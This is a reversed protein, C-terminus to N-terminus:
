FLDAADRETRRHLLYVRKDDAAAIQHRHRIDRTSNKRRGHKAKGLRHQVPNPRVFRANVLAYRSQPANRRASEHGGHTTPSVRTRSKATSQRRAPPAPRVSSAVPPSKEEVLPQPDNRPSPMVRIVEPSEPGILKVTRRKPIVRFEVTRKEGSHVILQQQEVDLSFYAPLDATIVRMRWTGPAVVGFDVRGHADSSQYITDRAGQLAVLANDFAGADVLSDQPNTAGTSFASQRGSARLRAGQALAVSFTAARKKGAAVIVSPDGVLVRSSAPDSSEFSLGYSGPALGSM